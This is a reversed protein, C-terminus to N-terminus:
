QSKALLGKIKDKADRSLSTSSSPTIGFALNPYRSIIERLGSVQNKFFVCTKCIYLHAKLSVAEKLSLKREFSDSILKSAIKCSVIDSEKKM